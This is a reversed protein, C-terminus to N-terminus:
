PNILSVHNAHKAACKYVEVTVHVLGLNSPILEKYHDPSQPDRTVVSIIVGYINPGISWLHLDAIWNDDDEISQKISTTIHEPGQRDLLVASTARLLGLSWRSVLVAGVIGMVPDMWILGIYKATLLAFIALMSTVADALVHLYAARLNHDHHHHIHEPPKQGAHPHDQHGNQEHHHGRHHGLIFVSVGNVILGLVAVFIAQNFAIEVPHIIRDISEFAMMLAFISLLVAGTFGGLANVKGTGFSYKADHAHRRAYIYAFANITLAAAHSAMHVGDALLAMSGFMIGASIEVIMMTATIAIVIITHLEGPLKRDQGFTHTHQRHQLDDQHM